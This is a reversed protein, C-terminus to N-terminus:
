TEVCFAGTLQGPGEADKTANKGAPNQAKLTGRVLSTASHAPNGDYAELSVDVVPFASLNMSSPLTYIATSGPNLNGIAVMNKTDATAMWVEYYGRAPSSLGPITVTLQATSGVKHVVATGSVAAGGMPALTASAVVHAPQPHSIVAVTALSGAILGVAAAAAAWVFRGQRRRSRAAELSPVSDVPRRENAVHTAIATWVQAPPSAPVDEPTVARGLLVVDHYEQLRARCMPCEQAHLVARSDVLEGCAMLALADQDCHSM